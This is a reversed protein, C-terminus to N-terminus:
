SIKRQDVFIRSHMVRESLLTMQFIVLFVTGPGAPNTNRHFLIGGHMTTWLSPNLYYVVQIFEVKSAYRRYLM